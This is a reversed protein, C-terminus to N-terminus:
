SGITRISILYLLIATKYWFSFSNLLYVNGRCINLVYIVNKM